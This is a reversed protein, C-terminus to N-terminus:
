VGVARSDAAQDFTEIPQWQWAEAKSLVRGIGPFPFHFALVLAQDAARDLIRRKTAM